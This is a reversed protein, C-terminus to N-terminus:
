EKEELMANAIEGISTAIGNLADYHRMGIGGREDALRAIETQALAIRELSVVLGAKVGSDFHMACAQVYGGLFSAFPAVQDPKTPDINFSRELYELGHEAWADVQLTLDYEGAM